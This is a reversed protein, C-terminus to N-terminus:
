PIPRSAGTLVLADEGVLGPTAFPHSVDKLMVAPM